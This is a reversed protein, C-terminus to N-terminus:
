DLMRCMPTHRSSVCAAGVFAAPWTGNNYGLDDMEGGCPEDCDLWWHHIGYPEIYGKEVAAFAYRIVHFEFYITSISQM